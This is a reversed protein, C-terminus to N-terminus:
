EKDTMELVMEGKKPDYFCKACRRTLDGCSIELTDVGGTTCQKTRLLLQDKGIFTRYFVGHAQAPDTPDVWRFMILLIGKDSNKVRALTAYSVSKELFDGMALMNWSYATISDKLKSFGATKYNLPEFEGYEDLIFKHDHYWLSTLGGHSLPPLPVQMDTSKKVSTDQTIGSVSLVLLSLLALTIRM